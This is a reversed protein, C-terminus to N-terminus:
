IGHSSEEKRKFSKQSRAIKHVNQINRESCTESKKEVSKDVTINVDLCYFM